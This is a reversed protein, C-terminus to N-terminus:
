LWFQWIFSIKGPISRFGQFFISFINSVLSWLMLFSVFHVFIQSIWSLFYMPTQNEIAKKHKMRYSLVSFMFIEPCFEKSFKTESKFDLSQRINVNFNFTRKFPLKQVKIKHSNQLIVCQGGWTVKARSTKMGNFEM